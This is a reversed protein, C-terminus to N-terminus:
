DVHDECLCGKITRYKALNKCVRKSIIVTLKSSHELDKRTVDKKEFYYSVSGVKLRDDCVEAEREMNSEGNVVVTVATDIELNNLEFMELFHAKSKPKFKVIEQLECMQGEYKSIEEYKKKKSGELKELRELLDKNAQIIEKNENQLNKILIMMDSMAEEIKEPDLFKSVTVTRKEFCKQKHQELLKYTDFMKNCINCEVKIINEELTAEKCVKNIHNKVNWKTKSTYNCNSCKFESM